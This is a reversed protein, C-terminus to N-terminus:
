CYFKEDFYKRPVRGAVTIFGKASLEENLRKIIRYATPKSVTLIGSIDEANYFLARTDSLVVDCGKSTRQM